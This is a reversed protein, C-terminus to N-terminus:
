QSYGGTVTNQEPLMRHMCRKEAARYSFHEMKRDIWCPLVEQNGVLSRIRDRHEVYVRLHSSKSRITM